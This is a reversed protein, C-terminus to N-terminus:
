QERKGEDDPRFGPDMRARRSAATRIGAKAPIVISSANARKKM